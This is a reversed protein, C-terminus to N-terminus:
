KEFGEKRFRFLSVIVSSMNLLEGIIGGLTFNFINHILWAPSNAFLQCLRIKKGDGWWMAFATIFMGAFTLSSLIIQLPNGIIFTLSFIFCFTLFGEAVIVKWIKKDNELFLLNRILGSINFLVGSVAGIMFYNVSFM